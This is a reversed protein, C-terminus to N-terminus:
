RSSVSMCLLKNAQFENMRGQKYHPLREKCMGDKHLGQTKFQRAQGDPQWFLLEYQEAGFTGDLFFCNGDKREVGKGM